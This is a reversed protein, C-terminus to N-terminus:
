SRKSCCPLTASTASIISRMVPLDRPKANMVIFSVVSALAAIAAILPLSIPPRAKDTLSARGRSSRGRGDPLLRRGYALKRRYVITCGAGSLNRPGAQSILIHAQFFSNFHFPCDQRNKGACHKTDRQCVLVEHERMNRSLHAFTKNAKRNAVAHFEFHRRVIDVLGADNIPECLSIFNKAVVEGRFIFVPGTM